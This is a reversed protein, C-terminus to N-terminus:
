EWFRELCPLLESALPSSKLLKVFLLRDGEMQVYGPIRMLDRGVRLPGYTAFLSDALYTRTFFALYNHAMDTLIVWAEQADRKHKRRKNLFLGGSKDTRLETEAAGRQDYLQLARPGSLDLSSLLYAHKWGTRTQHRVVFTHVLRSFCAPTPACGVFRDPRVQRWRQVLSALKAARRQSCGKVLVQYDRELLWNINADGGFGQDLRWVVKARHEAPLNLRQEFTLVAPLLCNSSHQHGPYLQSLLSEHYAPIM